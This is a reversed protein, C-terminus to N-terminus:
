GFCASNDSNHFIRILVMNLVKSLSVIADSAGSDATELLRKTLEELLVALTAKPVALSLEQQDFFGSLTQMLHKCLRLTPQPTSENLGDFAFTMQASIANILASAQSVLSQRDDVIAKQVKKLVDVSDGINQSQIGAFPGGLDLSLSRARQLPLTEETVMRQHGHLSKLTEPSVPDSNVYGLLHASPGASLPVPLASMRRKSASMAPLRSSATLKGVAPRVESRPLSQRSSPRQPTASTVETQSTQVEALRLRKLREDLMTQDKPPLDHIYRFIDDGVQSYANALTELVASRTSPDKDAILSAIAPLAKKPQCVGLGQRKIFIGIEEISEARCRASKAQSGHELLQAFVKSSPYVTGLARIIAKARSRIPEKGDGLQLYLSQFDTVGWVHLEGRDLSASLSVVSRQM